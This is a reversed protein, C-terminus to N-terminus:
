VSPNKRKTRSGTRYDRDRQSRQLWATVIQPSKKDIDKASEWTDQEIGYGAWRILYEQRPASPNPAAPTVPPPPLIASSGASKRPVTQSSQTGPTTRTTSDSTKRLSDADSPPLSSQTINSEGEESDSSPSDGSPTPRKSKSSPPSPHALTTEDGAPPTATAPAQDQSSAQSPEAKSQAERPAQPPQGPPITAGAQESFFIESQVEIDLLTACDSDSGPAPEQLHQVEQQKLRSWRRVEFPKNSHTSRRGVVEGHPAPSPRCLAGPPHNTSCRRLGVMSVGLGTCDPSSRRLGVRAGGSLHYPNSRRPGVWAGGSLHYPNSRRPGVWAGGSLHYPNSRRPGVWAAGSLHNPSSHDYDSVLCFPRTQSKSNYNRIPSAYGEPVPGSEKPWDVGIQYSPMSRVSNTCLVSTGGM